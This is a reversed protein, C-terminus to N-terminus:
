KTELELLNSLTKKNEESLLASLFDIPSFIEQQKSLVSNESKILEDYEKDIKEKNLQYNKIAKKYKKSEVLAELFDSERGEQIKYACSNERKIIEQEMEEIPKIIKEFEMMKKIERNNSELYDNEKITKIAEKVEEIKNKIDHIKSPRAILIKQKKNIKDKLASDKEKLFTFINLKDLEIEEIKRILESDKKIIAKRKADLNKFHKKATTHYKQYQAAKDEIDLCITSIAPSIIPHEDNSPINKKIKELKKIAELPGLKEILYFLQDNLLDNLSENNM